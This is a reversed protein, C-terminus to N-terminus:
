RKWHNPNSPHHDSDAYSGYLGVDCSECLELGDGGCGDANCYAAGCNECRTFDNTVNGCCSCSPYNCECCSHCIDEHDPCAEDIEEGCYECDSCHCKRCDSGWKCGGRFHFHVCLEEGCHECDSM